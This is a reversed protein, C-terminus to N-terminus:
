AVRAIRYRNLTELELPNFGDASYNVQYGGIREQDIGISSAYDRGAVGLVVGVLGIPVEDFGHDYTVRWTGPDLPWTIGRGWIGFVQGTRNSVRFYVPDVPTFGAGTDIELLSVQKVPLEPLYVSGDENPDLVVVDGSVATIEQQLFDRVMGSAASLKIQASTDDPQIQLQSFAALQEVTALDPLSM